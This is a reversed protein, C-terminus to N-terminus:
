KVSSQTREIALKSSPLVPPIPLLKIFLSLKEIESTLMQSPPRVQLDNWGRKGWSGSVDKWGRKNMSLDDEDRDASAKVDPAASILVVLVASLLLFM